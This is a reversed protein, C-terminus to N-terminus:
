VASCPEASFLLRRAPFAYLKQDPGATLYKSASVENVVVLEVLVHFLKRDKHSFILSQLTFPIIFAPEKKPNSDKKRDNRRDRWIWGAKDRQTEVM